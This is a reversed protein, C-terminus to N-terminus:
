KSRRTVKQTKARRAPVGLSPSAVRELGDRTQWVVVMTPQTCRSPASASVTGNHLLFNRSKAERISPLYQVKTHPLKNLRIFSM